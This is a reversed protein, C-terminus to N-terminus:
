APIEPDALLGKGICVFDVKGEELLREGDEPNIRGVGIVPIGVEQKIGEILDEIVAAQFSATTLHAPSKPGFSSVHIASAGAKQALRAIQKAEEKTTGGKIGYQKGNIRCWVPFETGVAQRIALIVEILFRARNEMTGGYKDNRKNTSRSLFEDILYGHAGHVEVGDFGAAKARRAANAFSDIIEQIKEISLEEPVKGSLLESQQSGYTFIGLLSSPAVHRAVAKAKVGAHQLQIAARAGHKHIVDVLKKLGSVYDDDSICIQNTCLRGSQHVSTAEVIVLGVGGKARAKYYNRVRENVHGSSSAYQLAMPAMVLRNKVKM